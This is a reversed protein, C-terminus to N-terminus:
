ESGHCLNDGHSETYHNEFYNFRPNGDSGNDNLVKIDNQHCYPCTTKGIVMETFHKRVEPVLPKIELSM